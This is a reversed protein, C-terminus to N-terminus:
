KDEPFVTARPFRPVGDKTRDNFRINIMKGLFKKPNKVYRKYLEVSDSVTGMQKAIVQRVKGNITKECLWKVAGQHTGSCEEAGVVKWEEDEFRKYKLLDNCHYNNRCVYEADAQRVMLGEFEYGQRDNTEGVLEKMFEEIEKHNKVKRRPVLKIPSGKPLSKLLQQLHRWREECSAGSNDWIDFVWFEVLDEFAHPEKRTIKCTESLFQFREVGKLEVAGTTKCKSYVGAATKYLKHVYMEGDLVLDKEGASVLLDKVADRIHNLYVYDKGNRSELVISGKNLRPLCRLGDVKADAIAPFKIAKGQNSLAYEGNKNYDKYKKALMPFHQISLDKKGSTTGVTIATEGWMKVGRLMGGNQAKQENVFNYVKLGAKDKPAYGKGIQQIWKKEAEALAQEEPSRITNGKYVHTTPEKLKGTVLGDTRYLTDKIVWCAWVREKGTSLTTFMLPFKPNNRWGDLETQTLKQHAM